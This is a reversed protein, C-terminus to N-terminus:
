LYSKLPFIAISICIFFRFTKAVILKHMQAYVCNKQRMDCKRNKNQLESIHAKAIKFKLDERQIDVQIKIDVFYEYLYSRPNKELL